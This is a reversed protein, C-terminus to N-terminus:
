RPGNIKRIRIFSIVAPQRRWLNTYSVVKASIMGFSPELLIDVIVFSTILQDQLFKIFIFQDLVFSIAKTVLSM